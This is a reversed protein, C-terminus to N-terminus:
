KGHREVARDIRQMTEIALYGGDRYRAGIERSDRGCHPCTTTAEFVYFLCQRCLVLVPATSGQPPSAPLDSM